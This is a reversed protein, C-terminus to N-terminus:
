PVIFSSEVSWASGIFGTDIVQVKWRYTTGPSLGKLVFFRQGGSDRMLGANGFIRAVRRWGTTANSEPSVIIDATSETWVFVNYSLGDSDSEADTTDDWMLTVETGSVNAALNVPANPPTNSLSPLLNIRLDLGGDGIVAFDLTGDNNVDAWAGVGLYAQLADNSEIQYHFQGDLNYTNKLIATELNWSANEGTLLLDPTGDADYDGWALSGDSLEPLTVTGSEMFQYGPGGSNIFVITAKSSVSDDYGFIGIDLCGDSNVDCWAVSANSFARGAPNYDASLRESFTGDGNNDYMRYQGNSGDNGVITLDLDGDNDYDGWALDGDSVDIFPAVATSVLDFGGGVNRYLRTVPTGATEDYGAMVIDSDGDNDFDGWDLASYTLPSWPPTVSSFTTDGNNRYLRAYVGEGYVPDFGYGMYAIDLYGDNNYDCWQLAGDSIGPWDVSAPSFEGNGSNVFLLSFYWPWDWSEGFVALDLDGDNDFDGWDLMANNFGYSDFTESHRFYRTYAYAVDSPASDGGPTQATVRYWYETNQVVVTDSFSATDPALGWSMTWPGSDSVDSRELIFGTENITNDDWNLAINFPYGDANLNSPPMPKPNPYAFQMGTAFPGGAYNADIAQVAWNLNGGEYFSVTKSHRGVVASTSLGGNGLSVVRRWGDNPEGPAVAMAPYLPEDVNDSWVLLNYNLGTSAMDADTASSWEFTIDVGSVSVSLSTPASPTSNPIEWNNKYVYQRYASGDYGTAVFDLDGDNEIDAWTVSSYRLKPLVGADADPMLTFSGGADNRYLRANYSGTYGTQLLDLYGDNNFDGWALQGDYAGDLNYASTFTGDQNNRYIRTRYGGSYGQIAIDLWGDNDYDGWAVSSNYVQIWNTTGNPIVTFVGNGDNRYLISRSSWGSDYGAVALDLDGDNDYDGWAVSPRSVMSIFNGPTADKFSGDGMNRYLAISYNGVIVLDTWGDNDYDGWAADGESVEYFGADQDSFTGDGNNRYLVSRNVGNNYDYGCAFFDIWGDNNFDAVTVASYRLQYFGADTETFSGDGNNMMIKTYSYPSNSSYGSVVYDLWGDNNFDTFAADSYYVGTTMTQSLRFYATRGQVVGSYDSQLPGAAVCYVRYWYPTFPLVLTDSFSVSNAPLTTVSLFPGSAGADSREVVVATEFSCNDTWTLVVRSLEGTTTLNTPHSPIPYDYNFTQVDSWEGGQYTPDIAQVAWYYIGAQKFRLMWQRETTVSSTSLGANGLEAIRRRGTADAMGSMVSNTMSGSSHWVALNYNLGTSSSDIDAPPSWKLTAEALVVNSSLGNTIKSPRSCTGEYLNKFVRLQNGSDTNGSLVIDLDGDGDYDGWAASSYNLQTMYGTNELPEFAGGGRNEFVITKRNDSSVTTYGTMLIDLDGDNNYDGWRIAGYGMPTLRKTETFAYGTGPGNNTYVSARYDSDTLGMVAIDLNGDGNYDGVDLSPYSYGYPFVVPSATDFSGDGNNWYIVMSYSGNNGTIVLDLHGDNNFDGWALKCYQFASFPTGTDTFVGNGDNRYLRIQRSWTPSGQYGSIVIDLDGDNDYDGWALDGYHVQIWGTLSTVDTLTGGDNRYLKSRYSTGNYALDIQGDNNYDGWAISGYSVSTFSQVQTFTENGNNRYLYTASGGCLLFDLDGDGDYDCWSLDSYDRGNPQFSLNEAFWRTQGDTANSYQSYTPVGTFARVRYVYEGSGVSVDNYYTEDVGLTAITVFSIGGNESRELKYGTEISTNDTWTLEIRAPYGTAVLNTPASPAPNTVAFSASLSWDSGAFASDISQAQWYYVGASTFSLSLMRKGSGDDTLLGANGTQAVRRWGDTASLPSVVTRNPSTQWVRVNYNLGDASTETDSGANWALRYSGATEISTLGIPAAPKTNSIESKNRYVRHFKEGTADSNGMLVFDLDSDNDFDAWALSSYHCGVVFGADDGALLDFTGSTSTRNFYFLTEDGDNGYGTQVIDLYGDNDFDGWRIRGYGKGTLDFTQSFTGNRNNRYIHTTYSGRSGMLAMDLWGDNDYDGWALSSYEVGLWNTDASSVVSFAGAGNNKYLVSRYNWTSNDYGAAALDLDGDNDFDGWALSPYDDLGVFIGPTADAFTGDGNNRYLRFYDNGVVALDPAGDNNFDGWELDGFSVGQFNTTQHTFTGDGNNRYLLTHNTWSSNFYGYGCIAFDIWGDNDYDAWAVASEEMQVFGSGPNLGTFRGTGDNRFLRTYTNWSSTYGTAIYDLDGDNDYDAFALDCYHLGTQSEVFEFRGTVGQATNSYDSYAPGAAVTRVRYWVISGGSTVDSFSTSNDPLTALWGFTVGDPSREIEYGSEFNCNDVWRLVIRSPYGDTRLNLPTGPRPVNITFTGATSWDGGIFTSDIAQVQWSYEGSESLSVTWERQAGGTLAGANGVSSVFRWGTAPDSQPPCLIRGDSTKTVIINYNLGNSPTESDTAPDWRLTADYLNVTSATNLPASPRTNPFESGYNNRYINEVTQGSDTQGSLVIDLDGDNDYDGVGIRGYRVGTWDPATTKVFSTGANNIYLDAIYQGTNWDRGVVVVDLWGDNDFDGFRVAGYELSNSYTILNTPTFTGNQNNRYLVIDDDYSSFVVIDIWGDNNYDSADVTTANWDTAANLLGSSPTFSGDGDNFYLRAVSNGGSDEGFLILDLFGDNDLDAWHLAPFEVNIFGTQMEAFSGNGENRYLRTQPMGTSEERGTIVVDLDGDNDYDGWAVDGYEVQIWPVAVQVFTAAGDNRYLLSKGQWQSDYYCYGVVAVDLDGDNDYDGWALNAYEYMSQMGTVQYVFSDGGINRYLQNYGSDGAYHLDLDGDGDVDVFEIDGNYMNGFDGIYEFWVPTGYDSNSYQSFLGNAGVARVRYIYTEGQVVAADHYNLTGGPLTTLLAFDGGALARELYYSTAGSSEDWAIDLSTVNSVVDLNSPAPVPVSVITFSGESSWDGGTYQGDIAQVIWRYTGADNLALKWFRNGGSDTKMGANGLRVVLRFGDAASQSPMQEITEGDKIVRLNYSLADSPTEADTAPEWILTAINDTVNATPNLPATPSSNSTNLNNRYAVSYPSGTGSHEGIMVLDPDSDNDLDAWAASAGDLGSWGGDVYTFSGGGDNRYLRSSYGGVVIVDLWGDNNYDIWAADSNRQGWFTLPTVDTWGGGSENRFLQAISTGGSDEGCVLMDLWGDNNYDGWALDGGCIDPWGTPVAAFTESGDNRLLYTIPEYDWDNGAVALDLDGDNDYDGWALASDFVGDGTIYVLSFDGGGDNRYLYVAPYGGEEYWGAMAIDPDGDNDYDGWALSALSLGIWNSPTDNVFSGYGNNRYLRAVGTGWQDGVLAIDMRGDGNYDSWAIDSDWAGAWGALFIYSMDGAGNNRYLMSSPNGFENEGTLAADYSSDNDYDAIDVRGWRVGAFDIQPIRSFLETRASVASTYESYEPASSIARVRYYYYQNTTLGTHTYTTINPGVSDIQNWAGSYTEILFNQENNSNDQWTLTVSDVNGVARLQSPAAPTDSLNLIDFAVSTDFISPYSNSRVRVYAGVIDTAPTTWASYTHLGDAAITESGIPIWMLGNYYEFNVNTAGGLTLDATLYVIPLTTNVPVTAGDPQQIAIEGDSASGVQGVFDIGSVPASSIISVNTHSPNFTYGAANPFVVYDGIQLGGFEYSGDAETITPGPAGPGGIYMTVGSMATLTEDYVTGSLTTYDNTGFTVNSSIAPYALARVRVRLNDLGAAVPTRLGANIITHQGDALILYSAVITSYSGSGNDYEVAVYRNQMQTTAFHVDFQLDTNKDEDLSPNSITISAGIPTARYYATANGISLDLPDNAIVLTNASNVREFTWASLYPTALVSTNNSDFGAMAYDGSGDTIVSDGARSQPSVVITVNSLKDITQAGIFVSGSISREATISFPSDSEDPATMGPVNVRFWATAGATIDGAGFTKASASSFLVIESNTSVYSTSVTSWVSGDSTFELQVSYGALNAASVQVDPTEGVIFNQGGNPYIIQVSAGGAPSGTFDYTAPVGEDVTLETSSPDFVYGPMRPYIIFRGPQVGTFEYVGAANTVVTDALNLGNPTVVVGEMPGVGGDQTIIGSITTLQYTGFPDTEGFITPFDTATVRVRLNSAGQVASATLALHLFTQSGDAAISLAPDIMAYTGSGDDYEVPVTRGAMQTTAFRIDFASSPYLKENVYPSIVTITAGIPTARYYVASDSLTLNLVNSAIEVTNSADVRKFLFGSLLPTLEVADDLADYGGVSFQGIANTVATSGSRNQPSFFFTVNELYNTTSGGVFVTGSIFREDTITFGENSEDPDTTDLGPVWVRFKATAGVTVDQPLFARSNLGSFVLLESDSAPTLAGVQSWSLGDKAFQLVVEYGGLNATSVLVNPNEGIIFVEHSGGNPSIIQLATGGVPIASFSLNYPMGEVVSLNVSPPDFIFRELLPYITYVGTQLNPIVFTGSLTAGAAPPDQPGIVNITLGSTDLAGGGLRTVQGTIQTLNYTRFTAFGVVSPIEVSSLRITLDGINSVAPAILSPHTYEFLGDSSVLLATELVHTTSSDFYEIRLHQNTMLTTAYKLTLPDGPYFPEANRPSLVTITVGVPTATFSATADVGEVITVETRSPNFLYGQKTPYITYVGPPFGNRVYSGSLTSFTNSLNVISEDPLNPGSFILKVDSLGSGIETLCSGSITALAFTGFVHSDSLHPISTASVIIKINNLGDQDPIILSPDYFLSAGDGPVITSGIDVLGSGNDYQVLATLNQLGTSYFQVNFPAGPYFKEIQAPRILVIDTNIPTAYFNLGTHSLTASLDVIYEDPTFNYQTHAPRIRYTEIALNRLLYEGEALMETPSPGWSSYATNRINVGASDFVQLLVGPLGPLPDQLCSIVCKGAIDGGRVVKFTGDSADNLVDYLSSTVRIAGSSMTDMPAWGSYSYERWGDVVTSSVTLLGSGILLSDSLNVSTISLWPSTTEPRYEIIVSDSSANHTRWTITMPVTAIFDAGGGNPSLLDLRRGVPVAIFDIGSTSHNVYIVPEALQGNHYFDYAPDSPAVTFNGAPFDAQEFGGDSSTNVAAPANAGSFEVRVGSLGAGLHSIRGSVRYPATGSKRTWKSSGICGAILLAVSFLVISFVRSPM